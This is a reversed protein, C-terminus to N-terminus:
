DDIKTRLIYVVYLRDTLLPYVLLEQDLWLLTKQESFFVLPSQPEDVCLGSAQSVQCSRENLERMRVGLVAAEEEVGEEPAVDEVLQFWSFDFPRRVVSFTKEVM